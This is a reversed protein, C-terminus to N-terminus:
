IWNKEGTTFDVQIVNSKAEVLTNILKPDDFRRIDEENMKYAIIYETGKKEITINKTDIKGLLYFDGV